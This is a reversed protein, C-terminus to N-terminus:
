RNLPTPAINEHPYLTTKWSIDTKATVRKKCLAFISLKKPFVQRNKCFYSQTM